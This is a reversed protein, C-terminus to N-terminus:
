DNKDNHKRFELYCEICEEMKEILDKPNEIKDSDITFRSDEDSLALRNDGEYMYIKNWYQWTFLYPVNDKMYQFKIDWGYLMKDPETDIQSGTILTISGEDILSNLIKDRKCMTLIVGESSPYLSFGGYTWRVYNWDTNKKKEAWEIINTNVLKNFASQINADGELKLTRNIDDGMLLHHIPNAYLLMNPEEGRKLLIYDHWIESSFGFIYKDHHTWSVIQKEWNQCYSLIIRNAIADKRYEETLGTDTFILLSNKWKIVFNTWDIKNDSDTFLFRIAGKFFAHNEAELIAMEWNWENDNDWNEPKDPLDMDNGTLIQKAKEREESLQEQSANSQIVTKEDALFEYINEIHSSLEDILKTRNIMADITSITSNEVLNCVIRMWRKFRLENFASCREFYRCIGFFVVRQPQTLISIKYIHERNNDVGIFSGDDGKKYTPIFDFKNFWQPLYKNILENSIFENNPIIKEFLASLELFPRPTALIDAYTDLGNDYLLTSDDSKLGYLKWAKSDEKANTNVIAFNLFYRNLFAFFKEDVKGSKDINHQWFIDTWKIDMKIPIGSQPNLLDEWEKKEEAQKQIHGILDAKFNEFATLQKGRANMKIYLDDSLGFDKLPLYYFVISANESILNNWYEGFTERDTEKFLEEIGDVIDEGQRDTLRTGGLMNLMAQITPDQMWSSYFWTRSKIYSVIDTGDKYNDFNSAQCLNECFERSSIRTEYTFYRLKGCAEELKGARLAIYWHLLWLTTLRQQGDLPQLRGHEVSGYVFDLKLVKGSDLAQKISALFNKRLYEKGIRGQAYDRQIIPIEISDKGILNWFSTKNKNM